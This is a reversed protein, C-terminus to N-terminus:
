FHGAASGSVKKNYGQQGGCVPLPQCYKHGHVSGTEMRGRERAKPIKFDKPNNFTVEIRLNNGKDYMKIQNKNIRFRIRYGQYRHRLGSIIEGRRFAHIKEVNRGFFSYIDHNSFTLYTTEVLAKYFCSLEERSKFHIDAASGCQDTCWYCSHHLTDMIDPFLCNIKKTMGDFSHQVHRLPMKVSYDLFTDVITLTHRFM